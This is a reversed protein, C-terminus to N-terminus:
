SGWPMPQRAWGPFLLKDCGYLEEVKDSIIFDAKLFQLLNQISRLNGAKYDVVGTKM